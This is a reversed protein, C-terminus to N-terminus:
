IPGNKGAKAAHKQDTKAMETWIPGNKGAKAAHKQDTKAV